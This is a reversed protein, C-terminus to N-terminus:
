PKLEIIQGDMSRVKRPFVQFGTQDLCQSQDLEPFGVNALSLMSHFISATNIPCHQHTMLQQWQQPHTKRWIPNAWFIMPIHVSYYTPPDFHMILAREDDALNEGHDSAYLLLSEGSSAEVQSIIQDLVFDTYLISNDYANILHQIKDRDDFSLVLNQSSPQFHDFSAPYREGYKYHSGMMHVIIFRRQDPERLIGELAPLLKADHGSQLGENVFITSDAMLAHATIPTVGQFAEVKHQNSVWYTRYGAEQFAGILSKERFSTQFDEVHGRTIMMPVSLRTLSAESWTDTYSLLHERKSLFPNTPRHYGNIQWNSFRSSEGIVLVITEVQDSLPQAQIGFQFQQLADQQRIIKQMEQRYEGIATAFGIPYINSLSHLFKWQFAASQGFALAFILLLGLVSGIQLGRAQRLSIQSP